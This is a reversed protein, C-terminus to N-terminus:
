TINLLKRDINQFPISLVDIFLKTQEYTESFELYFHLYIENPHKM